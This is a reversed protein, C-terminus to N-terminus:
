LSASVIPVKGNLGDARGQHPHINHAAPHAATASMDLEECLLYPPDIEPANVAAPPIAANM